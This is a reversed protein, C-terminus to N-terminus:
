ALPEHRVLAAIVLFYRSTANQAVLATMGVTVVGAEIGLDPSMGTLIVNM